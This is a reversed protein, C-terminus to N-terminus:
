VIKILEATKWNVIQLLVTFGNSVDGTVSM